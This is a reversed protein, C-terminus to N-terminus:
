LLLKFNEIIYNVIIYKSAHSSVCDWMVINVNMHLKADKTTRMAFRRRSRKEGTKYASPFHRGTLRLPHNNGTLHQHRISQDYKELIERILNLQFRAMFIRQKMKHKYLCYANWVCIDMLHFFFKRYWKSSKRTSNVTSIVMDAKDVAGMSDNYDLVCVPKHIVREGGRRIVAKFEATHMTSLM